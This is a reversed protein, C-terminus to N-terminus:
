ALVCTLRTNRRRGTAFLHREVVGLGFCNFIVDSPMNLPLDDVFVIWVKGVCDALQILLEALPQDAVGVVAAFGHDFDELSPVLNPIRSRGEMFWLGEVM